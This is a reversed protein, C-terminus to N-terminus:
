WNDLARNAIIIASFEEQNLDNKKRAKVGEDVVQKISKKNKLANILMEEYIKHPESRRWAFIAQIKEKYSGEGIRNVAAIIKEVRIKPEQASRRFDILRMQAIEQVPGTLITTKRMDAIKQKPKPIFDKAPAPIPVSAKTQAPASSSVRAPASIKNTRLNDKHTAGIQHGIDAPKKVRGVVRKFVEDDKKALEPRPKFEPKPSESVKQGSKPAITKQLSLVEEIAAVIQMALDDKLGAGGNEKPRSLTDITARIDRVEKVRSEVIKAVTGWEVSLAEVKEKIQAMTENEVPEHASVNAGITKRMQKEVQKLDKDVKKEDKISQRKKPPIKPSSVTTQESNSGGFEQKIKILLEQAQNEDLGVGSKDLPKSLINLLHKEDFNNRGTSVLRTVLQEYRQKAEALAITAPRLNKLTLIMETDSYVPIQFPQANTEHEQDLATADWKKIHQDVSGLFQEAPKFIRTAVEAALPAIEKEPKKLAHALGSLFFEVTRNGLFINLEESVLASTQKSELKYKNSIEINIDRVVEDVIYEYVAKPLNSINKFGIPM